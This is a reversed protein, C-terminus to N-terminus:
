ELEVEKSQKVKLQSLVCASPDLDDRVGLLVPQYLSGGPFYYLYKVEVISGPMPIDQNPYVTVNGVEVSLAGDYLGLRVSRKTRNVGVVLCSATEVFKFKVQSGGSAPRGATYMADKRKFVIGEAKKNRLEDYLTRKSTKDPALGALELVGGSPIWNNM